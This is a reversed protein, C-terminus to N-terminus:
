GEEQVAHIFDHPPPDKDFRKDPVRQMPLARLCNQLPFTLILAWNDWNNDTRGVPILFSTAAIPLDSTTSIRV